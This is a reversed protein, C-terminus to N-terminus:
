AREAHSWRLERLTVAKELAAAQAKAGPGDIWRLTREGGPELDFGADDFHGPLADAAAEVWFAPAEARVVLEPGNAGEAARFSLRPDPLECRKPEVLLRMVSRRAPRADRSGTAGANVNGRGNGKRRAEEISAALYVTEPALITGDHARLADLPLEKLVRASEGAM